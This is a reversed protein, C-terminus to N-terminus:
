VIYVLTAMVSSYSRLYYMTPLFLRNCLSHPPSLLLSCHRSLSSYDFSHPELSLGPLTPSLYSFTHTMLITLTTIDHDYFLLVCSHHLLPSHHCASTSRSSYDYPGHHRSPDYDHLGHIRDLSLIFTTHGNRPICLDQILPLCVGNSRMWICELQKVMWCVIEWVVIDPM